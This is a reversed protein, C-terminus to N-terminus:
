ACGAALILQLANSPDQFHLFLMFYELYKANNKIMRVAHM